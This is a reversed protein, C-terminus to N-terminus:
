MYAGARPEALHPLIGMTKNELLLRCVLKERSQLESTHEESRLGANGARDDDVRQALQRRGVDDLRARQAHLTRVQANEVGLNALLQLALAVRVGVSVQQLTLLGLPRRPMTYHRRGSRHVIGEEM